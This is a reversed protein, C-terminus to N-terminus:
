NIWASVIRDCAETSLENGRLEKGMELITHKDPVPMSNIETSNVQTSGNLIRYYLDYITSNLLCYVGLAEDEEKCLIYNVKNQTSIYKYNPHDKKLYIGCQLRRREEKATFRKVLVYNTNEQLYSKRDTCIYENEKGVPWVIKGNKIHQSYLLPYTNPEEADNRLVDRTRFDVILGTKMRLGDSVLTNDFTKLSDLCEIENENTVLYVYSNKAVITNYDVNISTVKTFDSTESFTMKISSPKKNTKRIKIIMTEQLVSEGNFVKDRSGFLHIHEIVTRAFLWKRFKEFYAGSTWSRPIIYVLQGDQKLKQVSMAMFLFYLNPAGYCIEKMHQAEASESPIKKYPPNGIVLDYVEDGKFFGGFPESTIFNDVIIQYKFNPVNNSVYDLNDSLVPLVKTDNEYCTVKIEGKYGISLLHDVLAVTLIGTGAGADLINLREKNLDIDFMSSMFQAGTGVTFFQGYEKREAKSKSDVFDKTKALVHELYSMM